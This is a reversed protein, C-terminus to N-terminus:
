PITPAAQRDLLFVPRGCWCCVLLGTVPGKPKRQPNRDVAARSASRKSIRRKDRRVASGDPLAHLSHRHGKGKELTWSLASDSKITEFLLAQVYSGGAPASYYSDPSRVVFRSSVLFCLFIYPRNTANILTM